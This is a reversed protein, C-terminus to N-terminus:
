SFATIGNIEKVGQNESNESIYCLCRLAVSKLHRHDEFHNNWNSKSKRKGIDNVSVELFMENAHSISNAFNFRGLLGGNIM